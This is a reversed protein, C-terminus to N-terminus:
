SFARSRLEPGAASWALVSGQEYWDGLVARIAPQGDLEFGHIAPRHTHGHVLRRVGAQRMAAAVAAANVDMYAAPRGTAYGRSRRRGEAGAARRWSRPLARFLRQLRPDNVRKRYRQYAQDDTCLLDGHTLLVPEGGIDVVSPDALLRAGTMDAFRPGLLFDRNGRMVSCANGARSYDALAATVERALPQDDDDGIWFEFLDGLIYLHSAGRADGALFDRFAATARPRGADLHLDSVFLTTTM